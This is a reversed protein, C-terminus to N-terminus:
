SIAWVGNLTVWITGSVKDMFTELEAELFDVAEEENHVPILLPWGPSCCRPPTTSHQTEARQGGGYEILSLIIAM